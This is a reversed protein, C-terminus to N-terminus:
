VLTIESISYFHSDWIYYICLSFKLFITVSVPFQSLHNATKVQKKGGGKREEKGDTQGERKGEIEPTHTHTHPQVPDKNGHM